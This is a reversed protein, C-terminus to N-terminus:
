LPEVVQDIGWVISEEVVVHSPLKCIDVIARGVDETQLKLEAEDLNTKELFKSAGAGPVLCTVRINYKQLDVYLGKSFGLVGWKASAYVSWGPWAQKACASAINIITGSRQEKMIKSFVRSGYIVGNLNLSICKDIDEIKQETIEKIQFGAGANNVLIDIGNYKDMIYKATRDWDDPSTVDMSIYDIDGIEGKAKKLKDESRSAIVVRAGESHFIEATAKGYGESGGTILVVKDKVNSMIDAGKSNNNIKIERELKRGVL